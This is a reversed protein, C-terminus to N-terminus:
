KARVDPSLRRLFVWAAAAGVLAGAVTFGLRQAATSWESGPAAAAAGLVIAATVFGAFMRNEGAIAHGLALVLAVGALALDVAPPLAAAVLVGAAAGGLTGVIRASAEGRAHHANPLLVASLGFVIWVGHGWGQSIVVGTVAGAVLALTVGHVLAVRVGVPEAPMLPVKLLRVLAVLTAAALLVGIAAHWPEVVEAQAGTAVVVIPLAAGVPGYRATFPIAALAAFAVLAAMAWPQIAYDAAAVLAATLAVFVAKAAMSAERVVMTMVAISGLAVEIALGAGATLGAVLVVVGLSVTVITAL